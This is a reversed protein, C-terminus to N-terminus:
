SSLHAANDSDNIGRSKSMEYDFSQTCCGEWSVMAALRIDFIADFFYRIILLIVVSAGWVVIFLPMSAGVVGLFVAM